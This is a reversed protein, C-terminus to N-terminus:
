PSIGCVWQYRGCYTYGPVYCAAACAAVCALWKGYNRKFLSKCGASCAGKCNQDTRGPVTVWNVCIRYCNQQEHSNQNAAQVSIAANSSTQLQEFVQASMDAVQNHTSDALNLIAIKKSNVDPQAIVTVINQYQDITFVAYEQITISNSLVSADTLLDFVFFTVGEDVWVASPEDTLTRNKISQFHESTNITQLQAQIAKNKPLSTNILPLYTSNQSSEQAQLGKTERGFLVAGMIFGGLTGLLQRRGSNSRYSARIDSVLQFVKLARIPGLIKLLEYKMKIGTFITVEDTGVQKTL